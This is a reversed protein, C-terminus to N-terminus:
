VRTSSKPTDNWSDEEGVVGPRMADLDRLSAFLGPPEQGALANHLLSATASRGGSIELPETRTIMGACEFSRKARQVTM